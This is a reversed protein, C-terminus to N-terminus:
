LPRIMNAFMRGFEKYYDETLHLSDKHKWNKSAAFSDIIMTQSAASGAALAKQVHSNYTAVLEPTQVDKTHQEPATCQVWIIHECVPRLVDIYWLVNEALVTMNSFHALDHIGANVVCVFPSSERAQQHLYYAVTEQTTTTIATQVEVDRAFEVAHLEATDISCRHDKCQARSHGCTVCEMCYRPQRKPAESATPPRFKTAPLMGYFEYHRCRDGDETTCGCRNWSEKYSSRNQYSPYVGHRFLRGMTSDGLFVWRRPRAESSPLRRQLLRACPNGVSPHWTCAEVGGHHARASGSHHATEVSKREALGEEVVGARQPRLREGLRTVERAEPRSIAAKSAVRRQLKVPLVGTTSLPESSFRLVVIACVAVLALLGSCKGLCMLRSVM